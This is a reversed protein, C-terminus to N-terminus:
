LRCPLRITATVESKKPVNELCCRGGYAEIIERAVFLGIGSHIDDDQDKERQEDRITIGLEFPDKDEPVPNGSNRIDIVAMLGEMNLSIHITSDEPSRFSVANEIFKELAQQFYQDAVGGEPSACCIRPQRNEELYNTFKLNKVDADRFDDIRKRISDALGFKKRGQKTIANRVTDKLTFITTSKLKTRLNAFQRQLERKTNEDDHSLSYSIQEISKITGRAEHLIRGDYQNLLKNYTKLSENSKRQASHIFMFWGCLLATSVVALIVLAFAERSPTDITVETFATIIDRSGKLPFM